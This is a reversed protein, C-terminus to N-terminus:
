VEVAKRKELNPNVLPMDQNTKGLMLDIKNDKEHWLDNLWLQFRERHEPDDIYDGLLQKTMPIKEIDVNIKTVKGCLFEWFTQIGEPYVITVNLIGTLQEGMTSFVFGIGGSKPKLLNRYPSQQRDHKERTFRTGEIFNMISVPIDKFKACAKKTIEIDKGKLHPNKELFSKDYRKMFPYDLAWWAPGLIPVWILEKKLFFKLFPIKGNFIKQLVVIDTWSQHNCIVLYWQDMSLGELGDVQWDIKRTLRLGLNNGAIWIFAIGNLIINFLKKAPKIRIIVKLFTVPFLFCAWFLTNGILWLTALIGIIKKPLFSLM